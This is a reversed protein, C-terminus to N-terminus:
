SDLWDRHKQTEHHDLREMAMHALDRFYLDIGKSGKKFNNLPKEHLVTFFRRVESVIDVNGTEGGERIKSGVCKGQESVGAM